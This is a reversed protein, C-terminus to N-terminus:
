VETKHFIIIYIASIQSSITKFGCNTLRSVKSVGEINLVGFKVPWFWHAVLYNSSFYVYMQPEEQFCRSTRLCLQPYMRDQESLLWQAMQWRVTTNLLWPRANLLNKVRVKESILPLVSKGLINPTFFCFINFVGIKLIKEGFNRPKIWPSISYISAFPMYPAWNIHSNPQRFYSRKIGFFANEAKKPLLPTKKQVAQCGYPNLWIWTRQM